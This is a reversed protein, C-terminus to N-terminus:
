VKKITLQPLGWAMGKIKHLTITSLDIEKEPNDLIDILEPPCSKLWDLLAEESDAEISLPINVTYSFHLRYKPM